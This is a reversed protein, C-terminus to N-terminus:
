MVDGTSLRVRRDWTEKWHRAVEEGLRWDQVECIFRAKEKPSDGYRDEVGRALYMVNFERVLKVNKVYKPWLKESGFSLFVCELVPAHHAAQAMAILLPNMTEPNPATRFENWGPKTRAARAKEKGELLAGTFEAYSAIRTDAM